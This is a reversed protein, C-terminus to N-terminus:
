VAVFVYLVNYFGNETYEKCFTHWCKLKTVNTRIKLEEIYVSCKRITMRNKM